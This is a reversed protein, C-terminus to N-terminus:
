SLCDAWWTEPPWVWEFQRTTDRRLLGCASLSASLLHVCTSLSHFRQCHGEEGDSSMNSKLSNRRCRAWRHQERRSVMLLLRKFDEANFLISTLPWIPHFVALSPSGGRKKGQMNFDLVAILLHASKYNLCDRPNKSFLHIYSLQHGLNYSTSSKAACLAVHLRCRASSLFHNTDKIQALSYQVM